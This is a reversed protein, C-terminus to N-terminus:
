FARTRRGIALIQGPVTRRPILLHQVTFTFMVNFRLVICVIGLSHTNIRRRFRGFRMFFFQLTSGLHLGVMIEHTSSRANERKYLHRKVTLLNQSQNNRSMKNRVRNRLTTVRGIRRVNTPHCTRNLTHNMGITSPHSGPDAARLM